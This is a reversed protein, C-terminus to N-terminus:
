RKGEKERWQLFKEKNKNYEYVLSEAKWVARFNTSAIVWLECAIKIFFASMISFLAFGGVTIVAYGIFLAFNDLM